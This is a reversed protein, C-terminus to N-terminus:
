QKAIEQIMSEIECVEDWLASFDRVWAQQSETLSEDWLHEDASGLNLGQIENWVDYLDCLNELNFLLTM